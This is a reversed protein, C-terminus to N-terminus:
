YGNRRVKQPNTAESASMPFTKLRLKTWGTKPFRIRRYFESLNGRLVAQNTDKITNTKFLGLLPKPNPM